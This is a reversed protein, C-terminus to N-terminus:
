VSPFTTIVSFQRKSKSFMPNEQTNLIRKTFPSSGIFNGKKRGHGRYAKCAEKFAEVCRRVKLFSCLYVSGSEELSSFGEWPLGNVGELNWGWGGDKLALAEEVSSQQSM